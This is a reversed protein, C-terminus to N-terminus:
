LLAEAVAETVTVVAAIELKVILSVATVNTAPAVVPFADVTETIGLPPKVPLTANVAAMVPLGVPACFKGVNLKPVVVGTLMVLAVAPVAVRVMEVVAEEVVGHLAAL